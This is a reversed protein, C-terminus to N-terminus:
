SSLLEWTHDALLRASSIFHEYPMVRGWEDPAVMSLVWNGDYKQYLHYIHGIVPNFGVAALYIKESIEVRRKIEGAQQALVEIQQRIQELQNDTQQYMASMANGKIRGRDEPKIMAGGVTHAYPLAHPNEAIKDKDIPNKSM